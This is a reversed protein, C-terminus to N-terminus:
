TRVESLCAAQELYGHAERSEVPLQARLGSIKRALM